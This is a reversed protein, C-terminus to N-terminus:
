PSNGHNVDKRHQAELAKMAVHGEGRNESNWTSRPKSIKEPLWSLAYKINKNNLGWDLLGIMRYNRIEQGLRKKFISYALFDSENIVKIDLADNWFIHKAKGKSFTKGYNFYLDPDVEAAWYNEPKLGFASPFDEHLYSLVPKDHDDEYIQPHTLAFIDAIDEALVLDYYCCWRRPSIKRESMAGVLSPNDREWKALREQEERPPRRRSGKKINKNHDIILKYISAYNQLCLLASLLRLSAGEEMLRCANVGMRRFADRAISNKIYEGSSNNM